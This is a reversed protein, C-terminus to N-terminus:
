HPHHASWGLCHAMEHRWLAGSRPRGKRWVVVCGKSTLVTCAGTGGKWPSGNRACIAQLDSATRELVILKGHYPRDYRDPPYMLPAAYAATVVLFCIGALPATARPM